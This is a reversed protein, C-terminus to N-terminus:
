IDLLLAPKSTKCIHIHQSGIHIIKLKGDNFLQQMGTM